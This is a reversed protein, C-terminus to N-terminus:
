GAVVTVTFSAGCDFQASHNGNLCDPASSFAFTGPASFTTTASQHAALGGTDFPRVPGVATATHVAFGENTWTVSGGARIALRAPLFGHDTMTVMAALPAQELRLQGTTGPAATVNVIAESCDFSPQRQGDLCDPASTYRYTGPDLLRQSYSQGSALGGSDLRYPLDPQRTATHVASGRNIWTITGGSVVSVTRPSIGRDSIAVTAQALPGPAPAQHQRPAPRRPTVLPEPQQAAAEQPAGLAPAPADSAPNAAVLATIAAPPQSLVGVPEVETVHAVPLAGAGPRM